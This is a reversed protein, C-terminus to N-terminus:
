GYRGPCESAAIANADEGTAVYQSAVYGEVDGSKIKYWGYEDADEIHVVSHNFLKGVAASDQIAESRINVFGAEGKFDTFGDTGIAATNIAQTDPEDAYSLPALCMSTSVAIAAGFSIAKKM